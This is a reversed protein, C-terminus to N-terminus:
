HELTARTPGQAWHLCEIIYRGCGTDWSRKSISQRPERSKSAKRKLYMVRQQKSWEDRNQHQARYRHMYEANCKRRRQQMEYAWLLEENSANM